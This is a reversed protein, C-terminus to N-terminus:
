QQRAEVVGCFKCSAAHSLRYRWVLLAACCFCDRCEHRNDTSVAAQRKLEKDDLPWANALQENFSVGDDIIREVGLIVNTRRAIDNAYTLAEAETPCVTGDGVKWIGYGADFGIVTGVADGHDYCLIPSVRVSELDYKEYVQALKDGPNNAFIAHAWEAADEFKDFHAGGQNERLLVRLGSKKERITPAFRLRTSLPYDPM